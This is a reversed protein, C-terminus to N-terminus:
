GIAAGLAGMIAYIWFDKRNGWVYVAIIPDMPIAISSADLAGLVCVGFFGLPKLWLLLALKLHVLHIWLKRIM